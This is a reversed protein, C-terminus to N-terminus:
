KIKKGLPGAVTEDDYPTLGYGSSLGISFFRVGSSRMGAELKKVKCSVISPDPPSPAPPHPRMFFFERIRLKQSLLLLAEMEGPTRPLMFTGPVINVAPFRGGALGIVNVMGRLTMEFSGAAGAAADHVPPSASWLPVLIECVGSSILDACYSRDAMRKGGMVVQVVQYGEKVACGAAAPLWGPLEGGGAAFSVMLSAKKELKLARRCEALTRIKKLELILAHAKKRGARAAAPKRDPSPFFHRAIKV